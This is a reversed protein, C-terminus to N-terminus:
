AIACSLDSKTVRAKEMVDPRAPPNM